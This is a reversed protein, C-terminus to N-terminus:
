PELVNECCGACSTGLAVSSVWFESSDLGLLGGLDAGHTAGCVLDSDRSEPWQGGTLGQVERLKKQKNLFQTVM